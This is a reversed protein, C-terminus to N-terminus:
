VPLLTTGSAGGNLVDALKTLVRDIPTFFTASESGSFLLGVAKNTATEILVAGSDGDTAMGTTRIQNRFSLMGLGPGYNATVLEVDAEEVRGYTKETSRGIKYVNMGNVPATTGQITGGGPLLNTVLRAWDEALDNPPNEVLAVAADLENSTIYDLPVYGALTANTGGLTGGDDRGPQMIRDGVVGRNSAALVHNNSLIYRHTPANSWTLLCGFTGATMRPHGISFGPPCPGTPNILALARIDGVEFTRIPIDVNPPAALGIGGPGPPVTLKPPVRFKSLGLSALENEVRASRVGVRIEFTGPAGPIEAAEATLVNANGKFFEILDGSIAALVENRTAM